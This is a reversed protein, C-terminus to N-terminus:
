PMNFKGGTGCDIGDLKWDGKDKTLRYLPGDIEIGEEVSQSWTYTIITEQKSSKTTRYLFVDPYDQGCIIPDFEFGCLQGDEYKGGCDAQALKAQAKRWAKLLPNTFHRAYGTDKAPDYWPEGIAFPLLNEDTTDLRFIGDLAKEAATQPPHFPPEGAPIEAAWATPLALLLVVFLILSRTKM